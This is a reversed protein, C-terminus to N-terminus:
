MNNRYYDGVIAEIIVNNFDLDKNSLGMVTLASAQTGINGGMGLVIPM